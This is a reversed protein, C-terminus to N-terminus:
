RRVLDALHLAGLPRGEVDIVAIRDTGRAIMQSLAQRLSAEASIPTGPATEGARLRQAVKEVSLLRMGAEERGIFDRVFDNVPATLLELPAGAQVLRGGDMIAIQTALRLAEDMDHTVFIITKRSVSHIRAIEAQLADRTIPDLAGFPEDMLLLDPDAALARAIGIRQQQGISLQHPYKRRVIEPDLKLMTLLESVRDRIRAKPWGLLGPVAGINREVTWHPFLGISQIVYGMRRRLEEPRVSATDRGDIRIVGESPPVLRNVMRLTTSKGAGSSGILVCFAGTPISLSVADVALMAGFRKGVRDLEIM